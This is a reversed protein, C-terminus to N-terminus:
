PCTDTYTSHDIYDARIEWCPSYTGILLNKTAAVAAVPGATTETVKTVTAGNRVAGCTLEVNYAGGDADQYTGVIAFTEQYDAIFIGTTRVVCPGLAVASGAQAPAAPVFSAAIAGVAALSTILRKSRRSM